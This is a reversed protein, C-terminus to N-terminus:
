IFDEIDKVIKRYESEVKGKVESSCNANIELKDFKIKASCMYPDSLNPNVKIAKDFCKAAMEIKGQQNYNIGLNLQAEALEHDLNSAKEYWIKANKFDQKKLYCNGINM